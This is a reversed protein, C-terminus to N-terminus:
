DLRSHNACTATKAQHWLEGSEKPCAQRLRSGSRCRSCSRYRVVPKRPANPRLPSGVHQV